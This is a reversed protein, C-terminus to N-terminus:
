PGGKAGKGPPAKPAPVLVPGRLPTHVDVLYAEESLSHGSGNLMVVNIRGQAHWGPLAEFALVPNSHLPVDSISKGALTTDPRGTDRWDYSSGISPYLENDAACRYVGDDQLYPRLLQEWSRQVNFPDPLVQDNDAAYQLFAAGVQRLQSM